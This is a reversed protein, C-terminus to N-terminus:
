LETIVQKLGEMLGTKFITQDYQVKEMDWPRDKYSIPFDVHLNTVHPTMNPGNVTIFTFNTTFKRILELIASYEEKMSPDAWRCAHVLIVRNPGKIAQILNNIRETYERKLDPIEEHPFSINFEINKLVRRNNYSQHYTNNTKENVLSDVFVEVDGSLMRQLMRRYVRLNGGDLTDFPSKITNVGLLGLVESIHSVEGLSVYVDEVPSIYQIARSIDYQNGYKLRQSLAYTLIQQLVASEVNKPLVFIIDTAFNYAVRGVKKIFALIEEMEAQKGIYSAVENPHKELSYTFAEKTPCKEAKFYNSLFTLHEQQREEKSMGLSKYVAQIDSDKNEGYIASEFLIPESYFVRLSDASKQQMTDICNTMGTENLFDLLARAGNKSIMYAFTGGLSFGLSEVSSKQVPSPFATKSTYNGMKRHNDCLHHGLFCLDWANIQLKAILSDLKQTVNPVATIDDEFICYADANDDELLRIYLDIHTLACGVAGAKMNYDNGEFIRQLKETPRLKQGDIAPVRAVSLEKYFAQNQVARLRDPRKDLNILFFKIKPLKDTSEKIIITKEPASVPASVLPECLHKASSEPNKTAFQPMDNLVYANKKESDFRDRTLRGIHTCAFSELFATCFQTVYRGAFEQEFHGINECFRGVKKVSSVRWVGPRLSFHPWYSSNLQHGYKDNFKEQSAPTPTYEHIFYRTGSLTTQFIGGATQPDDMTETYNRNFLVQAIPGNASSHAGIFTNLVELSKQIYNTKYGFEWDDELHLLYPTQVHDMIINMSKAHGKEAETKFYFTFFPYKEKMRTRDEESSCDDVCFWESILSHDTCSRLFSDMTRTFLDLRKCTTISLTILPIPNKTVTYSETRIALNKMNIRLYEWITEVQAQVLVTNLLNNCMWLSEEYKKGMQLLRILEVSVPYSNPFFKKIIEGTILGITIENEERCKRLFDVADTESGTECLLKISQEIIPM